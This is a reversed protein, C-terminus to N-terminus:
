FRYREPIDDMLPGKGDLFKIKWPIASDPADNIFLVKTEPRVIVRRNCRVSGGGMLPTERMPRDDCLIPEISNKEDDSKPMKRAAAAFFLIRAPSNLLEQYLRSDETVVGVRFYCGIRDQDKECGRMHKDDWSMSTMHKGVLNKDQWISYKGGRRTMRDEITRHGISVLHDLPYDKPWDANMCYKRYERNSTLISGGLNVKDDSKMGKTGAFAFGLVEEGSSTGPLYRTAELESYRFHAYV